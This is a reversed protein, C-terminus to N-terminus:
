TEASIKELLLIQVIGFIGSNPRVFESNEPNCFGPIRSRVFYVPTKNHPRAFMSNVSNISNELSYIEHPQFIHKFKM